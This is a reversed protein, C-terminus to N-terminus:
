LSPGARLRPELTEAEANGKHVRYICFGGLEKSHPPKKTGFM